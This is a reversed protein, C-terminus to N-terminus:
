SKCLSCASSCQRCQQQCGHAVAAHREIGAAGIKQTVQLGEEVCPRTSAMLDAPADASGGGEAEPPGMPLSEALLAFLGSADQLSLLRCPAPLSALVFAFAIFAFAFAVLLAEKLTLPRCPVLLSARVFAFALCFCYAFQASAPLM